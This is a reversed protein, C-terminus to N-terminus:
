VVSLQVDSEGCEWGFWLSVLGDEGGEGVNSYWECFAHRAWYTDAVRDTDAAWECIGVFEGDAAKVGYLPFPNKISYGLPLGDVDDFAAEFDCFEYEANVDDENSRRDVPAIDNWEHAIYRSWLRFIRIDALEDAGRIHRGMVMLSTDEDPNVLLGYVTMVDSRWVCVEEIIGNWEGGCAQMTHFDRLIIGTDVKAKRIDNLDM